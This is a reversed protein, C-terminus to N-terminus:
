RFESNDTEYLVVFLSVLAAVILCFLGEGYRHVMGTLVNPGSNCFLFIVLVRVASKAILVPPVM